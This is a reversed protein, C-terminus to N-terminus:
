VLNGVGRFHKKRPEIPFKASVQKLEEASMEFTSKKAQGSRLFRTIDNDPM